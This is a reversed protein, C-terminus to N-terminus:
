QGGKVTTNKPVPVDGCVLSQVFAVAAKDGQFFRAKIQQVQAALARDSKVVSASLISAKAANVAAAIEAKSEPTFSFGGQGDFFFSDPSRFVANFEGFVKAVYARFADHTKPLEDIVNHALRLAKERNAHAIRADRIAERQALMAPLFCFYVCFRHRGDRKVAVSRYGPLATKLSTKNQGEDGPFPGHYTDTDILAQRTGTCLDGWVCEEIKVDGRNIPPRSTAASVEAWSLHNVTMQSGQKTENHNPPRAHQQM